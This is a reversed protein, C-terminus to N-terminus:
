ASSPARAGLEAYRSPHELYAVIEGLEILAEPAGAVNAFTVPGTGAKQSRGTWKSFAAFGAGGRDRALVTFLAFLTVLILIPLLFQVISRLWPKGNQQDVSAPVHALTLRALLNTTYADSHPYAAWLQTGRRTVLEIRADQDLLTASRIAHATILHDARTLPVQEGPSSPRLAAIGLFFLALLLAATVALATALPNALLARLPAAAADRVARSTSAM